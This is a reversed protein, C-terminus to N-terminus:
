NAPWAVARGNLLELVPQMLRADGVALLDDGSHMDHRQGRWNACAGGANEVIPVAAAYDHPDLGREVVVDCHGGVLLGIAYADASFRTLATGELLAQLAAEHGGEFYRPGTTYLIAEALSACERCQQPVGNLTTAVKGHALWREGLIPQDILGLVARDRHVLAILTTFLPSGSLFSNTGDIPDLRWIWEAQPNHIGYEEGEIGHEPVERMLIERMAAEAESDAITVFSGDAKHELAIPQRFHTRIRAGAANALRQALDLFEAPCDM